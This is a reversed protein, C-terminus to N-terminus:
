SALPGGGFRGSHVLATLPHRGNPREMPRVREPLAAVADPAGLGVAFAAGEEEEPVGLAAHLRAMDIGAMARTALGFLHDQLALAMWAAGHDHEAQANPRGDNFTRRRFLLMLVPARPAWRRNGRVHSRHHAGEGGRAAGILWPQEDRSSPTWRVAEHAMLLGDEPIPDPKLSHHSWREVFM